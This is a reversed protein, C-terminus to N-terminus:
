EETKPHLAYFQATLADWEEPLIQRAKEYVRVTVGDNLTWTGETRTFAAGFGEGALLAEAPIWVCAQNEEGLHLQVPDATVIVDCSLLADSWGDRQDVAPLWVFYSRPVWSVRPLSLSAEANRLIEDNLIFSSALVGVRCGIEGYRDLRRVLDVIEMADERTPPNWSFSPLLSAATMAEKSAPQVRPLFPSLMFVLAAFAATIGSLRRKPEIKELEALATILPFIFSAAYLLLHQQGHTQVRVFLIFCLVTQSLTLINAARDAGRIINFIVAALLLVAGIVGFYRFFLLFDKDVGIAYAVYMSGYDALLKGSVLTQFFFLLTFAFASLTGLTPILSRKAALSVVAQVIVFALAYFAFWRRLLLAAALLIGVLFYRGFDYTEDHDTFVLLLALATMVVGGVDIFGLLVNYLLMPLMLMVASAALYAHRCRARAFAWVIVFVPLLWANAISLLFVMRSTGFLRAALIAPLIILYNYDQTLVSDFVMRLMAGLGEWRWVEALQHSVTWYGANDWFYITSSNKAYVIVAANLLALSALLFLADFRTFRLGCSFLARIRDRVATVACLIYVALLLGGGVTCLAMRAGGTLAGEAARTYLFDSFIGTFAISLVVTIGAPISPFFCWRRLFAAIPEAALAGCVAAALLFVAPLWASLSIQWVNVLFAALRVGLFYGACACAAAYAGRRLIGTIKKKAAEM